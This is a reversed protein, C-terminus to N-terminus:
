VGSGAGSGLLGGWPRAVLGRPNPGGRGERPKGGLRPPSPPKGPGLGGPKPKRGGPPLEPRCPGILRLIM